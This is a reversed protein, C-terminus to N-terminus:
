RYYTIGDNCLWGTKDPTIGVGISVTGNANTNITNFVDGKINAVIKCDHEVKFVAWERVEKVSAWIAFILMVIILVVLMILIPGTWDIHGRSKQFTVM